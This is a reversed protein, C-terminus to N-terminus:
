PTTYDIPFTFDDLYLYATGLALGGVTIRGHVRIVFEDTAADSLNVQNGTSLTVFTGSNTSVTTSSMITGLYASNTSDYLRVPGITINTVALVNTKYRLTTDGSADGIGDVTATAPVGFDTWAFKKWVYSDTTCGSGNTFCRVRFGGDTEGYSGGWLFNTPSAETWDTTDLTGDDGATADWSMSASVQGPGSPISEGISGEITSEKCGVLSIAMLLFFLSGFHHM